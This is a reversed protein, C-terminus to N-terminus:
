RWFEAMSQRTFHEDLDNFSQRGFVECSSSEQTGFPMYLLYLGVQSSYINVRRFRGFRPCIQLWASMSNNLWAMVIYLVFVVIKMIVCRLLRPRSIWLHQCDGIMMPMWCFLVFGMVLLKMVVCYLRWLSQCIHLWWAQPFCPQSTVFVTM